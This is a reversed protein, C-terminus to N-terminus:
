ASGTFVSQTINRWNAIALIILPIHLKPEKQINVSDISPSTITQSESTTNSQGSNSESNDGNPSPPRSLQRKGKKASPTPSTSKTQTQCRRAQVNRDTTHTCPRVCPPPQPNL